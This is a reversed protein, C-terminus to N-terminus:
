RAEDREDVEGHDGDNRDRDEKRGSRHVRLVRDFTVLEPDRQGPACSPTV